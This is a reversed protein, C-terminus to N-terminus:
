FRMQIGTGFGTNQGSTNPGTLNDTSHSYDLDFYIKTSKSLTYVGMLIWTQNQGPLLAQGSMALKYIAGTLQLQDTLLYRVALDSVKFADRAGPLGGSKAIAVVGTSATTELAPTAATSYTDDVKLNQYAAQIQLTEWGYTVGINKLRLHHGNADQNQQFSGGLNFNNQTYAFYSGAGYARFTNGVSGPVSYSIGLNFTGLNFISFSKSLKLMADNRDTAFSSSILTNSPNLRANVLTGMNGAKSLSGVSVASENINNHARQLPDMLGRSALDYAFTTNRGLSLNAGDPSHLSIFAKRDFFTNGQQSAGTSPLFGSELDFDATYQGGLNENGRIGFYSNSLSGSLFQTESQRAGKLGPALSDHRLGSDLLGYLEVNVQAFSSSALWLTLVFSQFLYILIGFLSIKPM